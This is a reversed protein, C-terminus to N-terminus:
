RPRDTETPQQSLHRARLQAAQPPIAKGHRTLAAEVADVIEFPGYPKTVYGAVDRDPDLGARKVAEVWPDRERAAVSVVPIEHLAADLKMIKLFELGDLDPRMFDQTLLDIPQHRLIDLAEYSSTTTLVEYGARKLIVSLLTLEESNDDLCL